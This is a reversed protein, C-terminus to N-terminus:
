QCLLDIVASLDDLWDALINQPRGPAKSCLIESPRLAVSLGLRRAVDKTKQATEDNRHAFFNRMAPLESFASTSYSLAVQVKPLNSAACNTLLRLLNNQDYWSPEDRRNKPPKPKGKITQMAFTLANITTRPGAVAINVRGGQPMTAGLFCSIYYARLFSGWLNLAEITAFAVIRDIETNVPLSLSDVLNKLRNDRRTAATKLKSLQRVPRM